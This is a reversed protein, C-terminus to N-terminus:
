IYSLLIQKIYYKGFAFKGWQQHVRTSTLKFANLESCLFLLYWVQESKNDGNHM